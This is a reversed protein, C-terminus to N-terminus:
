RSFDDSSITLNQLFNPGLDSGINQRAQIPDLSKSVRITNRFKKKLFYNKIFDASLVFTHFNGMQCLSLSALTTTFSRLSM